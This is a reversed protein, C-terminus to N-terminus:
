RRANRWTEGIRGAGKALLEEGMEHALKTEDMTTGSRTAFLREKGDVSLVCTKVQIQNGRVAALAGVPVKSTEELIRVLEREAEV